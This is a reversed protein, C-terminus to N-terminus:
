YISDCMSSQFLFSGPVRRMVVFIQHSHTVVPYTKVHITDSRTIQIPWVKATRM